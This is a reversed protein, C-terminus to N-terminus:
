AANRKASALVGAALLFVGGTARNFLTARGPQQLWHKARSGLAAYTILWLLEFAVFTSCLVVFQPVQPRAPDIFQPFLATFFVLAKPNSAGVLFGRVFSRPQATDQQEALLVNSSSSLLSTIGLYALYTAGAWKLVSFLLESASLIAGLGLASLAMICVIASTSGLAALVAQHFGRNVSTSVAMLVSPGPTVTLVFVAAVFVLWTNLHM